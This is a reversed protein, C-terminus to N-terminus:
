RPRIEDMHQSSGGAEGDRRRRWHLYGGRVLRRAAHVWPAMFVAVPMVSRVQVAAEVVARGRARWLADPIHLRGSM